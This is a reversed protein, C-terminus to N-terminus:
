EFRRTWIPSRNMSSFCSRTASLRADLPSASVNVAGSLESPYRELYEELNLM